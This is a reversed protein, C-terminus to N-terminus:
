KKFRARLYTRFWFTFGILFLMIGAPILYLLLSLVAVADHLDGEGNVPGSTGLLYVSFFLLLGGFVMMIKPLLRM